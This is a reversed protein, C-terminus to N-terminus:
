WAMNEITHAGYSVADVARDSARVLVPQFGPAEAIIAVIEHPISQNIYWRRAATLYTELKHQACTICVAHIGARWLRTLEGEPASLAEENANLLVPAIAGGAVVGLDAKVGSRELHVNWRAPNPIVHWGARELVRQVRWLSAAENVGRGDRLQEWLNEPIDSQPNRGGPYPLLFLEGGSTEIAVDGSDFLDGLEGVVEDISMMAAKALEGVTAIEAFDRRLAREITARMCVTGTGM